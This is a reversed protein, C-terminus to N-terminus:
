SGTELAERTPAIRGVRFSSLRYTISDVTARAWREGDGSGITVEALVEGAESYAVNSGAQPMAYLSDAETLFGAAIMSALEILVNRAQIQDIEEGDELTWVSDGRVLTYAEGDREIEVRAVQATDVSVIETDRWDDLERRAHVRVDGEILYVEDEGPLRGYVTRFRPGQDGILLARTEGGMEVEFTVASDQSVGMREHNAPNTAALDGIEAEALAEFFRDITSQSADFGNARWRADTRRLEVEGAPGTMRVVDIAPANMGDFFGVIDGTPGISGGGSGAVLTTVGWLVVAIVLAGVLQKLTRDSM